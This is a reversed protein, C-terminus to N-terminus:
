VWQTKTSIEYRNESKWPIVKKSDIQGMPFRGKSIRLRPSRSRTELSLRVAKVVMAGRKTVRRVCEKATLILLRDVSISALPQLRAILRDDIFQESEGDVRDFIM